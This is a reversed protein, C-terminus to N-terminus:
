VQRMQVPDDASAPAYGLGAANSGPGLGRLRCAARLEGLAHTDCGVTCNLRLPVTLNCFFGSAHSHNSLILPMSPVMRVQFCRMQVVLRLWSRMTVSFDNRQRSAAPPPLM